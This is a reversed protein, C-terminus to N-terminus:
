RLSLIPWNHAKAEAKLRDCPDVAVPNSVELLLPLDNISDSYFYADSLTFPRDILWENMRRVKGERFCPEGVIKGTYRGDIIEPETALIDDAGGLAQVIPEIVFRNTSTIVVVWDGRNRHADLLDMAMPLMMPTVTELMFEHHWRTLTEMSNDALPKLAFELYEIPDLEGEDYQNLYYNNRENYESADVYGKKCLFEGWGHDSDGAILTNDLDFLALAM